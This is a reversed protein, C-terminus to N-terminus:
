GLALIKSAVVQIDFGLMPSETEDSQFPTAGSVTVRHVAGGLTDANVRKRLEDMVDEMVTIRKDSAAQTNGAEDVIVRIVFSMSVENSASDYREDLSTGGIDVLAAPLADLTANFFGHVEALPQGSGAIGNLIGILATKTSAFSM